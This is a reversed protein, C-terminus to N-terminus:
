VDVNEDVMEKIEGLWKQIGQYTKEKTIDYVLM